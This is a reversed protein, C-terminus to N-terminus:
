CLVLWFRATARLVATVAAVLMQVTVVRRRLDSTQIWLRKKRLPGTSAKFLVSEINPAVQLVVVDENLLDLRTVSGGRCYLTKAQINKSPAVSYRFGGTCLRRTEVLGEGLIDLSVVTKEPAKVEWIFLRNFEKLISPQTEVM